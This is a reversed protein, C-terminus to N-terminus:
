VDNGSNNDGNGDGVIVDDGDGGDITDNGSNGDQNQPDGFIIVTGGFGFIEDDGSGGIITNNNDNGYIIVAINDGLGLTSVDVDDGAINIVSDGAGPTFPSGQLVITFRGITLNGGGDGGDSECADNGRSQSPVDCLGIDDEVVRQIWWGAEWDFDVDCKGALETYCLNTTDNEWIDDADPDVVTEDQALAITGASLLFLLIILGSVWTKLM